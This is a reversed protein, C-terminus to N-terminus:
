ITTHELQHPKHLESALGHLHCSCLQQGPWDCLHHSCYGMCGAYCPCIVAWTASITAVTARAVLCVAYCPCVAAWTASITTVTARAVLCVAYCPCIAAWTASITAVTARAVLCVAYCPCVAAWTASITAVTARAVLCCCLVPVSSGMYSIHYSCYGTCGPLLM